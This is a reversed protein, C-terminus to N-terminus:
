SVDQCRVVGPWEGEFYTASRKWVGDELRLVVSIRQTVVGDNLVSEAGPAGEVNRYPAVHCLSMGIEGTDLRTPGQLIEFSEPPSPLRELRRNNTRFLEVTSTVNETEDGTAYALSAQVADENDVDGLAGLFLDYGERFDRDIVQVEELTFGDPVPLPLTSATVPPATPAPTTPPTTPATTAPVTTTTTTPATTSPTTTPTTTPLATPAPTSPPATDATEDDGSCAAAILALLALPVVLRSAM